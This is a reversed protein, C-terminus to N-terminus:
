GELTGRVIRAWRRMMVTVDFDNTIRTRREVFSDRDHRHDIIRAVVVDDYDFDLQLTMEGVSSSWTRVRNSADLEPAFVDLEVIRPRLSLVGATEIDVLQYGSRALEDALEGRCIEAIRRSIREMEREDVRSSIPRYRNQDRLWNERFTVSCEGVHMRKFGGLDSGPRRYFADVRRHDVRELGDETTQVFRDGASAPLMAMWFLLAALLPRQTRNM